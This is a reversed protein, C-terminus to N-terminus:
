NRKRQSKGKRRKGGGIGNPYLKPQINDVPLQAQVPVAKEAPPVAAPKSTWSPWSWSSKAAPNAVAAAAKAEAAAAKAAKEEPTDWLWGGAKMRRTKGRSVKKGRKSYNKM